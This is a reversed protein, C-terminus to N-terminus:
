TKLHDSVAVRWQEEVGGSGPTLRRLRGPHNEYPAAAVEHSQASLGEGRERRTEQESPFGGVTRAFQSWRKELEPTYHQVGRLITTQALGLGRESMMAVLDRYSLKFSLYWRVCLVVIERDFHRGKYLDEVSVFRRMRRDDGFALANQVLAEQGLNLLAGFDYDLLIL